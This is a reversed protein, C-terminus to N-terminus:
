TYEALTVPSVGPFLYVYKACNVSSADSAVSLYPSADDGERDMAFVPLKVNVAVLCSDM